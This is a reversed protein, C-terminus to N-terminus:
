WGYCEYLKRFNVVEKNDKNSEDWRMEYLAEFMLILQNRSVHQNCFADTLFKTDYGSAQDAHLTITEDATTLTLIVLRKDQTLLLLHACDLGGINRLNVGEASDEIAHALGAWIFDKWNGTRVVKKGKFTAIRNIPFCTKYYNITTTTATPLMPLSGLAECLTEILERTPIFKVPIRRRGRIMDYVTDMSTRNDHGREPSIELLPYKSGVMKAWVTAVRQMAEAIDHSKRTRGNILDSLGIIMQDALNFRDLCVVLQRQDMLNLTDISKSPNDDASKHVFHRGIMGLETLFLHCFETGADGDRTIESTNGISAVRTNWNFYESENILRGSKFISKLPKLPFYRLLRRHQEVFNEWMQVAQESSRTLANSSNSTDMILEEQNTFYL